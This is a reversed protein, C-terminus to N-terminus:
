DNQNDEKADGAIIIKNDPDLMNKNSIDVVDPSPITMSDQTDITDAMLSQSTAAYTGADIDASMKKRARSLHDFASKTGVAGRAYQLANGQHVGIGDAADLVGEDCGALAVIWQGTEQLETVLAKCDSYGFEKSSNEEGDTFVTAFVKTNEDKLDEVIENRLGNLGMGIADCMRTSGGNAIYTKTTIDEMTSAPKKWVRFDIESGFTILCAIHEQDKYKEADERMSKLQENFGEITEMTVGSMSISNDLIM